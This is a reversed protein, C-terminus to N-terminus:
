KQGGHQANYARSQAALDAHRQARENDQNRRELEADHDLERQIREREAVAEAERVRWPVFGRGPVDFGWGQHKRGVLFLTWTAGDLEAVRHFTDGRLFNLSGARLWRSVLATDAAPLREGNYGFSDGRREERYGGALIFSVAWPWPHNHLVRDEDPRHFRHLYLTVPFWSSRAMMDGIVRYRSLYLTGADDKIMRHPLFQSAAQLLQTLKM